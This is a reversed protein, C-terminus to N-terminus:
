NKKNENNELHNTANMVPSNSVMPFTYLDMVCNWAMTWRASDFTREFWSPM